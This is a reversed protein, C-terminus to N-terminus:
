RDSSYLCARIDSFPHPVPLTNDILKGDIYDPHTMFEMEGIYKEPNKQRLLDQVSGFYRTAAISKGNIGDHRLLFNFFSKYIRFPLTFDGKPINRSIRVTCFRYKKLLRGICRYVSFYTHTYNHSDVHMLSFGMDLYKKIQAEAEAHVAKQIERNLWLRSKIPIHFVGKFFGNGDCLLSGACLSSLAKGETFNLHLGVADFFGNEKALRAADEACPMNVMITTQNILGRNFCDTVARNVSESYGFDDANIIM